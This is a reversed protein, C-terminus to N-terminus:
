GTSREPRHLLQAIHALLEPAIPTLYEVGVMGPLVTSMWGVRARTRVVGVEPLDIDVTIEDGPNLAPDIDVSLMAGLENLNETNGSGENEGRRLVVRYHVAVRPQIRQEAM